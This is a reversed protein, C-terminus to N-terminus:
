SESEVLCYRICKMDRNVSLPSPKALDLREVISPLPYILILNPLRATSITESQILPAVHMVNVIQGIQEPLGFDATTGAYHRLQHRLEDRGAELRPRHHRRAPQLANVREVLGLAVM